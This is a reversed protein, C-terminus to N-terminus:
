PAPTGVTEMAQVSEVIKTVDIPQPSGLPSLQGKLFTMEYMEDTVMVFISPMGVPLHSIFPM